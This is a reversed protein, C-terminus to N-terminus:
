GGRERSARRLYAREEDSLAGLGERKVKVLLADLRADGAGGGRVGGATPAARRARPRDPPTRGFIDFFDRLLHLRRIFFYGAIAGGLHAADGGANQGQRLINLAALLVFVYAGTRIKVPLVGFVYMLEDGAFYASAMLVGFCGASAGVLPTYADTVVFGLLNLLLYAIAGFIGCTLYYAAYRKRSGISQEVLPGFMWLGLMNMFLHGINAHLFQFTIVRWVELKEFLKGTSFHGAAELPPMPAVRQVGVPERTAADIVVRGHYPGQAPPGLGPPILQPAVALRHERLNIEPRLPRLGMDSNVVVGRAGLLADVVFVAVNIVILWTNFSWFRFPPLGSARRVGRRPSDPRAYDRDYLGM